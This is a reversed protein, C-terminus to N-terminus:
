RHTGLNKHQVLAVGKYDKNRRWNVKRKSILTNINERAHTMKNIVALDAAMRKEIALQEKRREIDVVISEMNLDEMKSQRSCGMHDALSEEFMKSQPNKCDEGNGCCGIHKSKIM